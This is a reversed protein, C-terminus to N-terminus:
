SIEGMSAMKNLIEATSFHEPYTSEGYEDLANVRSLYVNQIGSEEYKTTVCNRHFKNQPVAIWWKKIDLAPGVDEKVWEFDDNSLEDNKLQKKDNLDDITAYNPRKAEFRTGRPSSDRGFAYFGVNKTTVFAAAEWQGYTKQEGFDHLLRHNTQFAIRIDNLIRTALKENASGSIMGTLEDNYYLFLPFMFSYHTSKGYSRSWQLLGITNPNNRMYTAAEKHFKGFKAFCYNPFYYMCFREYDALNADIRAKKEKESEYAPIGIATSESVWRMRKEFARKEREENTM